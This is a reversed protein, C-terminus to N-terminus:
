PLLRTYLARPNLDRRRRWLFLEFENHIQATEKQKCPNSGEFLEINFISIKTKGQKKGKQAKLREPANCEPHLYGNAARRHIKNTSPTCTVFRGKGGKRFPLHGLAAANPRLSRVLHRRRILGSGGTVASRSVRRSLGRKWLPGPGHWLRRSRSFAGCLAPRRRLAAM